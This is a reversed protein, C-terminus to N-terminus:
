PLHWKSLEEPIPLLPLLLLHSHGFPWPLGLTSSPLLLRIKPARHNRSLWSVLQKAGAQWHFCSISGSRGENVRLWGRPFCPLPPPLLTTPLRWRGRQLRRPLSTMPPLRLALCGIWRAHDGQPYVAAPLSCYPTVSRHQSFAGRARPLCGQM